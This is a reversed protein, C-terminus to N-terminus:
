STDTMDTLLALNSHKWVEENSIEVINTEDDSGLGDSSTARSESDSFSDDDADTGVEDIPV